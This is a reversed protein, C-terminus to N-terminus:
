YGFGGFAISDTGKSTVDDYTWGCPASVYGNPIYNETTSELKQVATLMEGQINTSLEVRTSEDNFFSIFSRDDNFYGMTPIKKVEGIMDIMDLWPTM